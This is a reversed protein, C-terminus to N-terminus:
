AGLASSLHFSGIELTLTWEEITDNTDYALAIEGINSPWIDYFDYTYLERGDQGLQTVRADRFYEAVGVSGLNTEASNIQDQWRETFARAEFNIDNLITITWPEFTRNGAVKLQRGMYPVDIVGMVSTPLSAAKCLFQVSPGLESIQVTYLNPRSGSIFNSKFDSISLTM